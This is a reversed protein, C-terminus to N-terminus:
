LGMDELSPTTGNAKDQEIQELCLQLVCKGPYKPGVLDTKHPYDRKAQPEHKGHPNTEWLWCYVNDILGALYYCAREEQEIDQNGHEIVIGLAEHATSETHRCEHAVIDLTWRGQVFHLEGLKPVVIKSETGDTFKFRRPMHACYGLAESDPYEEKSIENLAAVDQWLYVTWFHTTGPVYFKCSAVCKSMDKDRKCAM